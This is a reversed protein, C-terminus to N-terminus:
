RSKSTSVESTSRSRKSRQYRERESSPSRKSKRAKRESSDIERRSSSSAYRDSQSDSDNREAKRLLKRRFHEVQQKMSWGSKLPREGSELEDQYECIKLEIERLRRRKEETGDKSDDDSNSSDGYNCISSFKPPEPAVPEQLLEWKSTTIAQHAVQQPDLEEWKSKVFGGSGSPLDAADMPVGDINEDVSLLFFTPFPPPLIHLQLKRPVGDIDDDYDSHDEKEPTPIGRMLAGKLLAAGDLPVGDLDEDEKDSLPVGDVNEVGDDKPEKTTIGLFTNQLKILFDRSYVAWEEWTRFIKMIRVKFGEAKLRSELSKYSDNLGKFMDVLNKEM